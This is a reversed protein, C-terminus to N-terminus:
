IGDRITGDQRDQVQVAVLDAIGRDKRADLARLQLLEQTAAAPRRQEDFPIVRVGHMLEHGGRHLGRDLVDAADLGGRTGLFARCPRAPRHDHQSRGLTPRSGFDDIPQLDLPCETRVLYRHEHIRVMQVMDRQELTPHFAISRLFQEICAASEDGLQCFEGRLTVSAHPGVWMGVATQQQVIELHGVEM